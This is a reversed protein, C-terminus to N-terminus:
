PHVALHRLVNADDSVQVEGQVGGNLFGVLLVHADLSVSGACARHCGASALHGMHLLAPDVDALEDERHQGLLTAPELTWRSRGFRSPQLRRVGGM